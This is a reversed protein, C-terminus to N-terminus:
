IWWGKVVAKLENHCDKCVEKNYDDHHLGFDIVVNELECWDLIKGCKACKHKGRPVDQMAESSDM